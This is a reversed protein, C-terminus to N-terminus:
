HLKCRNRYIHIDECYQEIQLGVAQVGPATAPGILNDTFVLGHTYAGPYVGFGGLDIEGAITNGDFTIGENYWLEVAFPWHSSDTRYNAYLTNDRLVLGKTGQLGGICIGSTSTSRINETITNYECIFDTQRNILVAYSEDTYGGTVGGSCNYVTNSYFRNGTRFSSGDFHVASRLFNEFFCDHIWVNNANYVNIGLRGTTSNGNFRINRIHITGGTNTVDIGWTDTALTWIVNTTYGEGELTVGDLDCNNAIYFTGAGVHIVDGAAGDIAPVTSTAKSITRWPSSETGANGDNGGASVYWTTQAQLLVPFFLLIFILRKM